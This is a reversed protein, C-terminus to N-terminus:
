GRRGRSPAVGTTGAGSSTTMDNMGDEIGDELDDMGDEINGILGGSSATSDTPRTSATTGATSSTNNTGDVTGDDSDSVNGKGKCGTLLTRVLALLLTLVLIRKM